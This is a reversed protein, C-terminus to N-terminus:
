RLFAACRSSACLAALAQWAAEVPGGEAPPAGVGVAAGAVAAPGGLLLAGGAAGGGGGGDTSAAGAVMVLDGASPELGHALLEQLSASQWQPAAGAGASPGAASPAAASSPHAFSPAPLTAQLAQMLTTALKPRLMCEMQLLGALEQRISAPCPRANM